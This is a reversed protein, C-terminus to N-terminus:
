LRPWEAGAHLAFPHPLDLWSRPVEPWRCRPLLVVPRGDVAPGRASADPSAAARHVGAFEAFRRAREEACQAAARYDSFGPSDALGPQSSFDLGCHHRGGLDLSRAVIAAGADVATGCFVCVRFAAHLTQKRTKKKLCFVAYSM